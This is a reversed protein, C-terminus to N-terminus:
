TAAPAAPTMPKKVFMAWVIAAGALFAATHTVAPHMLTAKIDM